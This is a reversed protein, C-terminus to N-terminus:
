AAAPLWVAFESGQGRGASTASIRGGHLEVLAKAIALGLGSAGDQQRAEDGRYFREFVHALVESTMGAGTDRVALVVQGDERRASLTITGGANTHLLANSVLNGLVQVMREPDVHVNPLNPPLDMALHIGRSEAQGQYAASLRGLLAAPAVQQRTMALEGADALSLTRLDDVLRQLLQAETHLVEFREPTPQL